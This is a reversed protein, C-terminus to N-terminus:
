LAHKEIWPRIEGALFFSGSVCILDDTTSAARAAQWASKPDPCIHYKSFTDSPISASPGQQLLEEPPTARDNGLFKTLYIHDFFPDVLRLIGGIDKDSTTAFILLRRRAAFSTDLTKLLARMSAVNHAADVIVTPNRELIEIRAPFAFNSLAQEVADDSFAVGTSLVEDRIALAVAANAAQHAGPIALPVELFTTGASYPAGSRYRVIGLQQGRELHEPPLYEFDFDRGLQRLPSNREAAIRTIVDKAPSETVGSVIPIGPKIIGAKEAAIQELSNGLQRMHDFSINTIATVRPSCVNTSDLRGGLGVELVAWDVSQSSFYLFALATTLEFFTLTPADAAEAEVDLEAVVPQLQGCIETLSEETISVGDVNYREELRQLHPSTYLGSKYGAATLMAACMAATSGKGKTGAIHVVPTTELPCGLCDNLRRMQRLNVERRGYPMATREYNIRSFLFELAADYTSIMGGSCCVVFLGPKALFSRICGTCWTM